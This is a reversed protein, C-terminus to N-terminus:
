IPCSTCPAAFCCHYKPCCHLKISCSFSVVNHYVHFPLTVLLPVVIHYMPCYHCCLTCRYSTYLMTMLDLLKIIHVVHDHPGVIHHHTCCPTACHPAVHHGSAVCHYTFSDAHLILPLLRDEVSRM